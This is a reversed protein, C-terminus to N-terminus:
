SLWPRFSLGLSSAAECDLKAPPNLLSVLNDKRVPFGPLVAGIAGLGFMALRSPVHLLRVRRGQRDAMRQLLERFPFVRSHALVVPRQPWREPNVLADAIAAAVDDVHALVLPQKGADFVPVVPLRTARFLTAYLGKPSESWCLGPRVVVGGQALTAAEVVLKGRGYDSACGEFAAVTSVFVVRCVGANRAASLLRTGGTVNARLAEKGV